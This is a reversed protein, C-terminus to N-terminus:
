PATVLTEPDPAPVREGANVHSLLPYRISPSPVSKTIVADSPLAITQHKIAPLADPLPAVTPMRPVILRDPERPPLRRPIETNIVLGGGGDGPLETAAVTYETPTPSSPSEVDDSTVWAVPAVPLNAVRTPERQIPSLTKLQQQLNEHLLQAPRMNPDEQLAKLTHQLAQEVDGNQQLLFALNYHGTARGHVSQLETLAAEIQHSKVLATALNNHYLVSDPAAQVAKHLAEIAQKTQGNEIYCLGLDNWAVADQPNLSTAKRYTAIAEKYEKTQSLLRALGLLARRDNPDRTLAQRYAGIAGRTNGRMEHMTAASTFVEPGVKKVPSSLSTPDDTAPKSRPTFISKMRQAASRAPRLWAPGTAPTGIPVASQIGTKGGAPGASQAVAHSSSATLALAVTLLIGTFSTNLVQSDM